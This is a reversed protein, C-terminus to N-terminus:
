RFIVFFILFIVVIHVPFYLYCFYKFWPKNYGRKGNYLFIFLAAMISYTQINAFEFGNNFILFASVANIEIYGSTFVLTNVLVLFAIGFINALSQYRMDSNLSEEPIERRKEKNILSIYALKYGFYFGLGILLGFLPYSPRIVGPLWLIDIRNAREIVGIVYTFVMYAIPLISFWSWKDKRKILYITLAILVLDIFPSSFTTMDYVFIGLFVQTLLIALGILSLQVIYKWFKRTHRVGEVIMFVYLPFSIRGIIKFIYGIVFLANTWDPMSYTSLGSYMILFIGIHDLTMTVMAIIKLVLENFPRKTM